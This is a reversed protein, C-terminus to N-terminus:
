KNFIEEIANMIGIKACAFITGGQVWVAFPERIPGDASLEISSGSIFNGAAMVVQNEYGPMDWPEPCVFSDVPSGQQIGRCFSVLNKENGLVVSQVIDARPDTCKPFVEFGMIEFAASAFVATKLAEGVVTPANYVGMFIDKLGYPNAGIERGIGPATLRYGCLEVLDHRGAIYGGCNAIGGGPNKILSGIILDAGFESPECTQAFEGYCNDVIAIVNPDINKAFSIIKGIEEYLLSNRLSYGRSRQIYIAKFGSQLKEKLKEYYNECDLEIYDFTIGFEALSGFNKGEIVDKMTDYPNGAVSLIKDGPRLVGFLATSLAHTGSVFGAGVLADETKFIKSFLESLKERGRDSYGYGSTPMFHSESIKSEIFAKLVKQSNIEKIKEIESFKEKCKQM